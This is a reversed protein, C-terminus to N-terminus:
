REEKEEKEVEEEDGNGEFHYEEVEKMTQLGYLVKWMLTSKQM